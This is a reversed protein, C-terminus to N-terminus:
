EWSSRLHACFIILLSLQCLRWQHCKFIRVESRYYTYWRILSPPNFQFARGQLDGTRPRPGEGAVSLVDQGSCTPSDPPRRVEMRYHGAAPDDRCTVLYLRLLFPNFQTSRLSEAIRPARNCDPLRFCDRWTIAQPPLHTLSNCLPILLASM